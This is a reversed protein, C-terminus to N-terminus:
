ENQAKGTAWLTLVVVGAGALFGGAAWWIVSSGSGVAIKRTKDLEEDKAKITAQFEKSQITVRLELNSVDRNRDALSKEKQEKLALDHKKILQERDTLVIANGLMDYLVGDFPIRDGRQLITFQGISSTETQGFAPLPATILCLSVIIALVRKLM